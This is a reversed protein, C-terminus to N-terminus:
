PLISATLNRSIRSHLFSAAGKGSARITSKKLAVFKHLKSGVEGLSADWECLTLTVNAAATFCIWEYDDAVALALTANTSTMCGVLEADDAGALPGRCNIRDAEKLAMFKHLKSSVERSSADWVCLTLTGNCADNFYVREYDDAVVPLAGFFNRDFTISDSQKSGTFRSFKSIVERISPGGGHVAVMGHTAAIFCVLKPGKHQPPWDISFTVQTGHLLGKKRMTASILHIPPDPTGPRLCRKMAIEPGRKGEVRETASMTFIHPARDAITCGAADIWSSVSETDYSSHHLPKNYVSTTSSPLLTNNTSFATSSMGAINYSIGLINHSVRFHISAPAPDSCLIPGSVMSHDDTLPIPNYTSFAASSMEDIEDTFQQITQM